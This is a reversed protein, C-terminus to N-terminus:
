YAVRDKTLYWLIQSNLLHPKRRPIQISVPPDPPKEIKLFMKLFQLFLKVFEFLYNYYSQKM